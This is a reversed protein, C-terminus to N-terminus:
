GTQKPHEYPFSLQGGHYGLLMANPLLWLMLVTYVTRAVTTAPAFLHLVLCALQVALLVLSCVIKCKVHHVMRAEYNLWWTFFGTIIGAPTSLIGLALMALALRDFLYPAWGTFSLVHFLTAAAPYAMPFHVIMPHPHRHLMPFRRLLGDLWAPGRDSGPEPALRGVRRIGEREFVEPGHPAASIDPTLDRGAHHRKVHLGDKWMRSAGLDFVEGGLAVYAPRGEQGNNQALEEHSVIRETM